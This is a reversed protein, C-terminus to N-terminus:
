HPFPIVLPAPKVGRCLPIQCTNVPSRARKGTPFIGRFSRYAAATTPSQQLFDGVRRLQPSKAWHELGAGVGSSLPYLMRLQKGIQLMKPIRQFSGYGNFLEDGGLGSLVVKTGHQRAVQSM